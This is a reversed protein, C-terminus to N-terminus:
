VGLSTRGNMTVVDLGRLDSISLIILMNSAYMYEPFHTGLPDLEVYQLVECPIYNYSKCWRDHPAASESPAVM